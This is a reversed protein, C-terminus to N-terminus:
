EIDDLIAKINHMESLPYISSRSTIEFKDNQPGNINRVAVIYREGVEIDYLPLKIQIEATAYKLGESAGRYILSCCLCFIIFM